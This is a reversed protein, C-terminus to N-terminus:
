RRQRLKLQIPPTHRLETCPAASWLLAFSCSDPAACWAGAANDYIELRGAGNALAIIRTYQQGVLRPGLVVRGAVKLPRALIAQIKVQTPTM